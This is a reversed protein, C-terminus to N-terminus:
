ETTIGKPTQPYEGIFFHEVCQQASSPALVSHEAGVEEQVKSPTCADFGSGDAKMSRMLAACHANEGPVLCSDANISRLLAACQANAGRLGSDNDPAVVDEKMCGDLNITEECEIVVTMGLGYDEDTTCQETLNTRHENGETVELSLDKKIKVTVFVTCMETKSM